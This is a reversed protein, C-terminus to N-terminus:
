SHNIKGSTVMKVIHTSGTSIYDLEINEINHLMVFFDCCNYTDDNNHIM